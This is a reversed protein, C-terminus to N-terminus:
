TCLKNCLPFMNGTKETKFAGKKECIYAHLEWGNDTNEYKVNDGSKVYCRMSCVTIDNM